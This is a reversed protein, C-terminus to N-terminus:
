GQYPKCKKDTNGKFYTGKDECTNSSSECVFMTLSENIKLVRPENNKDYAVAKLTFKDNLIGKAQGSPRICFEGADKVPLDPWTTSNLKFRGKQQYFRGMFRANELLAMQAKKLNANRVYKQYTPYAILVLVAAISLAVLLEVLTYGKHTKLKNM